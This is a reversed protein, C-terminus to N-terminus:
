QHDDVITDALPQVGPAFPRRLFRSGVLGGSIGVIAAAGAQIGVFLPSGAFFLSLYLGDEGNIIGSLVLPLIGFSLIGGILSAFVCPYISPRAKGIVRGYLLGVLFFMGLFLLFYLLYFFTGGVGQLFGLNLGFAWEIYDASPSLIGAVLVVAVNLVFLILSAIAVLWIEARVGRKLQSLAEAM